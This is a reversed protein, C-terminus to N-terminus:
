LHFNNKKYICKKSIYLFLEIIYNTLIITQYIM